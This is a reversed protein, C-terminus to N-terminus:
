RLRDALAQRQRAPFGFLNAPRPDFEQLGKALQMLPLAFDLVLHDPVDRPALVLGIQGLCVSDGGDGLRLL